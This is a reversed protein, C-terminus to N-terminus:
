ESRPLIQDRWFLWVVAGLAPVALLYGLWGLQWLNLVGLLASLLPVGAAWGWCKVDAPSVLLGLIGRPLTLLILVRLLPQLFLTLDQTSAGTFLADRVGLLALGSGLWLTLYWEQDGEDSIKRGLFYWSLILPVLFILYEISLQYFWLLFFNWPYRFGSSYPWYLAFLTLVTLLGGLLSRLVSRGSLPTHVERLFILALPIAFILFLNM